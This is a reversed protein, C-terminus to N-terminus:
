NAELLQRIPQTVEPHSVGFDFAWQALAVRMEPKIGNTGWLKNVIAVSENPTCGAFSLMMAIVSPGRHKMGNCGMALYKQDTLCSAFSTSATFFQDQIESAYTQVMQSYNSGSPRPLNHWNFSKEATSNGDNFYWTCYRNSNSSTSFEKALNMVNTANSNGVGLGALHIQGIKYVKLRTLGSTKSKVAMKNLENMQCYKPTVRKDAAFSLNSLCLLTSLTLVIATSRYYKNM